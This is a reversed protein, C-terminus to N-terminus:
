LLYKKSTFWKTSGSTVEKLDTQVTVFLDSNNPV